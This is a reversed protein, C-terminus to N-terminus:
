PGFEVVFFDSSQNQVSVGPGFTIPSNFVGTAVLHGADDLDVAFVNATSPGGYRTVWRLSGDGKLKAVFFDTNGNGVPQPPPLTTGLFDIGTALSSDVLTGVLAVDSSQNIRIATVGSAGYGTFAAQWVPTGSPDLKVIVGQSDYDPSNTYHDVLPPLPSFSAGGSFTGGAVLNGCPDSAIAYFSQSENGTGEYARAWTVSGDAAALKAAFAHANYPDVGLAGQGIISYAPTAGGALIVDDNPDVALALGAGNNNDDMFGNAIQFQQHWVCAGGLAIKTVFVANAAAGATSAVPACGDDVTGGESVLVLIVNGQSDIAVGDASDNLPGGLRRPPWVPNWSADFLAVFGDLNDRTGADTQQVLSTLTTGAIAYTGRFNGAIAIRGQADVASLLGSNTFGGETLIGINDNGLFGEAVLDTGSTSYSTVFLNEPYGGDPAPLATSGFVTDTGSYTGTVAVTGDPRLGVGLGTGNFASRAWKATAGDVGGPDTGDCKLPATSTTSTTSSTSTTDTGTTTSRTNTSTGGTAHTSSSSSTTDSGGSGEGSVIGFIANCSVLASAGLAAAAGLVLRTGFSPRIM